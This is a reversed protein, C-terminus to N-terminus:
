RGPGFETVDAYASGVEDYEAVTAGGDDLDVSGVAEVSGALRAIAGTIPVPCAAPIGLVQM